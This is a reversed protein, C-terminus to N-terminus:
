SHMFKPVSILYRVLLSHCAYKEVVVFKRTFVPIM